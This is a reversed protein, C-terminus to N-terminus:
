ETILPKYYAQRLYNELDNISGELPVVDSPYVQGVSTYYPYSFTYVDGVLPPNGGPMFTTYSSTGWDIEGNIETLVRFENGRGFDLESASYVVLYVYQYPLLRFFFYRLSSPLEGYRGQSRDWKFYGMRTNSATYYFQGAEYVSFDGTIYAREAYIKRGEETLIYKGSPVPPRRGGEVRGLRLGTHLGAFFSRIDVIM